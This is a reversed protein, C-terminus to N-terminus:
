LNEKVVRELTVKQGKDEVPLGRSHRVGKYSKIKKLRKIDFEKKLDLETTILHKTSGSDFDNRRNLMYEPIKLNKVTESIKEIEEKTLEVIKKSKSIKTLHCIANSIAFSIGKIRTLGVYVNRSGPIDTSMIRVLVETKELEPRKVVHQDQKKENMKEQKNEAM